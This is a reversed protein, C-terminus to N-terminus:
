FLRVCRGLAFHADFGSSAVELVPLFRRLPAEVETQSRNCRPRLGEASQTNGRPFRCRQQLWVRSLPALSWSSPCARRPPQFLWTPAQGPTHVSTDVRLCLLLEETAAPCLPLLIDDQLVVSAFEVVLTVPVSGELAVAGRLFGDGCHATKCM